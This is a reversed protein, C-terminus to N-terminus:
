VNSAVSSESLAVEARAGPSSASSTSSSSELLKASRAAGRRASWWCCTCVLCALLLLGNLAFSAPMAVSPEADGGDGGDGGDGVDGVDGVDDGQGVDVGVDVGGDGEGARRRPNEIEFRHLDVVGGGKEYGIIRVQMRHEDLFALQAFSGRAAFFPTEARLARHHDQDVPSGAGVTVFHVADATHPGVFADKGNARFREVSVYEGTTDLHAARREVVHQANHDHGNVYLAAGHRFLYPRLEEVLAPTPGHEAVSWIPYHGAVIVWDHAAGDLTRRLWEEHAAARALEAESRPPCGLDFSEGDESLLCNCMTASGDAGRIWGDGERGACVAAGPPECRLDPYGYAAVQKLNGSYPTCLGAWKVSDSMVVLVSLGDSARRLDFTYWPAEVSGDGASPRPDSAPYKWRATAGAPPDNAYAVQARVWGYYDHNGGIAYFPADDLGSGRYVEEFTQAFRPSHKSNCRREEVDGVEATAAGVWWGSPSGIAAALCASLATSPREVGPAAVSATLAHQLADRLADPQRRALDAHLVVLNFEISWSAANSSTRVDRVHNASINSLLKSSVDTAVGTKFASESFAKSPAGYVVVTGRVLDYYAARAAASSGLSTDDDDDCSLGQTYFNDGMMMVADPPTTSAVSKMAAAVALQNQTTPNENNWGGWDGIALLTLADPPPATAAAAAASIRVFVFM